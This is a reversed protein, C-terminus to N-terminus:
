SGARLKITFNISHGSHPLWVQWTLSESYTSIPPWKNSVGTGTGYNKGKPSTLTGSFLPLTHSGTIQSTLLFSLQPDWGATFVWESWPGTRWRSSQEWSHRTDGAWLGKQKVGELSLRWGEAQHSLAGAAHPHSLPVLVKVAKWDGKVWNEQNKAQEMGSTDLVAM